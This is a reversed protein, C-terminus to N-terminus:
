PIFTRTQEAAQKLQELVRERVRRLDREDHAESGCPCLEDFYEIWEKRTLRDQLGLGIALEWLEQHFIHSKGGRLPATEAMPGDGYVYEQLDRDTRQIMALAQKNGPNVELQHKTQRLSEGHRKWHLEEHRAELESHPPWTIHPLCLPGGAVNPYKEQIRLLQRDFHKFDADLEARTYKPGLQYVKKVFTKYLM